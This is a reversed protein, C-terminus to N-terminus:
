QTIFGSTVGTSMNGANDIACVRYGYTQNIVDTQMFTTSTGAYGVTGTACSTPARGPAYVVKYGAIGSLADTFGGWEVVIQGPGPTATMTGNVPAIRDLIISASYPTTNTNGWNDRFWVNVTRAGNGIALTWTKSPAFTMWATCTTTNSICMQIPTSADTANLTLTVAASRTWEDGNNILVVLGLPADTEAPLPKATKVVGTSMNGANDIACVRYGYTQNILDTHTFTTGTGEYVVTGTACSTPTSGPAYVVKYGAIGSLADTFGGWEVVIQGSGPTATMTGNVPATRDLIIGASYPTANTNGWSDRFWVNVRKAGDGTALTWTKSLVLTTWAKCTATNSICM